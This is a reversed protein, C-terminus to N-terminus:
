LEWAKFDALREESTVTRLNLFFFLWLSLVSFSAMEMWESLFDGLIKQYFQNFFETDETGRPEMGKGHVTVKQRGKRQLCSRLCHYIAALIAKHWKRM